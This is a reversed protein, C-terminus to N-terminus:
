TFSLKSTNSKAAVSEWPQQLETASDGGIGLVKDAIEEKSAKSSSAKYVTDQRKSLSSLWSQSNPGSDLEPITHHPDASISGM